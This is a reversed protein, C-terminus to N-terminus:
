NKEKRDEPGFQRQVFLTVQFGRSHLEYNFINFFDYLLIHPTVFFHISVRGGSCYM